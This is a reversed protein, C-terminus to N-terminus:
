ACLSSVSLRSAYKSVGFTFKILQVPAPPPSSYGAQIDLANGGRQREATGDGAGTWNHVRCQPSDATDVIRDAERNSSVARGTRADTVVVGVPTIETLAELGGRAYQRRRGGGALRLAGADGRGRRQVGARGGRRRPLLQRGAAGRPPADGHGAVDERVGARRLLRARFWDLLDALREGLVEVERALEDRSNVRGERNAGPDGLTGAPPTFVAALTDSFWM